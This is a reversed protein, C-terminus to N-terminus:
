DEAIIIVTIKRGRTLYHQIKRHDDVSVIYLAHKVSGKKRLKRLKERAEWYDRAEVVYMRGM